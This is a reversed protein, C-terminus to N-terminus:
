LSALLPGKVLIYLSYSMEEYLRWKEVCDQIRTYLGWKSSELMKDTVCDENDFYDLGWCGNSERNLMGEFFNEGRPVEEIKNRLM